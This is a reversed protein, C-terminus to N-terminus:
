VRFDFLGTFMLKLLRNIYKFDVTTYFSLDLNTKDTIKSAHYEDSGDKYARQVCYIAPRYKFPVLEASKAAIDEELQDSTTFYELFPITCASTTSSGDLMPHTAENYDVHWGVVYHDPTAVFTWTRSNGVGIDPANTGTRYTYGAQSSTFRLAEIRDEVSPNDTDMDIVLDHQLGMDAYQHDASTGFLMWIPNYFVQNNEPDSAVDNCMTGKFNSNLLKPMAEIGVKVCSGLSGGGGASNRVYYTDPLGWVSRLNHIQLLANRNYEPMVVYNEALYDFTWTPVNLKSAANLIDAYIINLTSSELVRTIMDNLLNLYSQMTNDELIRGQAGGSMINSLLTDSVGNRDCLYVTKLYSGTDYTTEDLIWTSAPIYVYMQAMSSPEDVYIHQYMDRAKRIFGVNDILPIQNIRSMCINFQMRYNAVNAMLDQSDFGLSEILQLPMFRNRPNYTMAVGFTRRIHESISAIQSISLLMIAIDQPGYSSTRGTFTSLLTYLKASMLNIGNRQLNAANVPWVSADAYDARYDSCEDDVQYTNGPSPNLYIKCITPAKYDGIVSGFGLMNQFSLQSAQTALEPSTFYWNPDNDRGARSLGATEAMKSEGRQNSGRRKNNRNTKSKEDNNQNRKRM